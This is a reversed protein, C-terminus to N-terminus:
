NSHDADEEALPQQTHETQVSDEDGCAADHGDELLALEQQNVRLEETLNTLLNRYMERQLDSNAKEELTTVRGIRRTLNRVTRSIESRDQCLESKPQPEEMRAALALTPEMTAPQAPAASPIEDNTVVYGLRHGRPFTPESGDAAGALATMLTFALVFITSKVM